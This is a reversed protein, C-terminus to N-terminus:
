QRVLKDGVEAGQPGSALHHGEGRLCQRFSASRSVSSACVDGGALYATTTSPGDCACIEISGGLLAQMGKMGSDTFALTTDLGHKKFYGKEQAYFWPGYVADASVYGLSLKEAALGSGPLLMSVSAILACLWSAKSRKPLM